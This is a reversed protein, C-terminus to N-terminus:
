PLHLLRCSFERERIRVAFTESVVHWRGAHNKSGHHEGMCSCECKAGTANWCAPACIELKNFPQIVYVAGFRALLRKLTDEFWAM